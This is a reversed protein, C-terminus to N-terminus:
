SGDADEWRATTHVERGSSVDHAYLGLETRGPHYMLEIPRHRADRVQLMDLGDCM